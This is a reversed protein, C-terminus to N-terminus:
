PLRRRVVSLVIWFSAPIRISLSSLLYLLFEYRLANVHGNALRGLLTRHPNSYRSLRELSPPETFCLNQQHPQISLGIFDGYWAQHVRDVFCSHRRASKKTQSGSFIRVSPLSPLSPSAPASSPRSYRPYTPITGPEQNGERGRRPHHNCSVPPPSASIVKCRRRHTRESKLNMQRM